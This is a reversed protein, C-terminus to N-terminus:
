VGQFLYWRCGGGWVRRASAGDFLAVESVTVRGCLLIQLPQDPLGGM